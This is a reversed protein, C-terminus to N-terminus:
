LVKNMDIDIGSHKIERALKMHWGEAPDMSVYLRGQIDSPLEVGEEYLACVNEHGLKAIFFGLEFIVNQRARPKADEPNGKKYGIDDRTLLIVAFGVDSYDEFKQIITRGADPKEHLIIPNLELKELFRAIAQKAAENHGHVIFINKGKKIIKQPIIDQHFPGSLSPILELRESISELKEIKSKLSDRMREVKRSLPPPGGWAVAVSTLGAFNFEDAYKSNDFYRSLLENCFSAWKSKLSDLEEFQEKSTIEKELISKGQEILNKIKQLAEEKPVILNPASQPSEGKRKAM